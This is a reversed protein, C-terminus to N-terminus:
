LWKCLIQRILRSVFSVAIFHQGNIGRGSNQWQREHQLRGAAADSSGFNFVDFNISNFAVPGVPPVQSDFCNNRWKVFSYIIKQFSVKEPLFFDKSVLIMGCSNDYYILNLNFSSM